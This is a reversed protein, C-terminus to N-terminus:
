SDTSGRKTGTRGEGADGGAESGKEEKSPSDQKEQTAESEENSPKDVAM